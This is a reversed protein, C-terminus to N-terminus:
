ESEHLKEIKVRRCMKATNKAIKIVRPAATQVTQISRAWCTKWKPQITAETTSQFGTKLFDLKGVDTTAASTVRREANEYVYFM